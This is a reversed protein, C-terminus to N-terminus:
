MEDTFRYGSGWSTLIYRPQSLNPEIKARLRNIHSNVNHEYGNFDYGWITNLLVERSYSRGPNTMFLCLSDFERPTLEVKRNAM